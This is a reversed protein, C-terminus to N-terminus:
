FEKNDAGPKAGGKLALFGNDHLWTNLHMGRQFSNFGHDSLVIVLTREDARDLARGVIADCQCYHDRIVNALEASVGHKNAPHDPEGFRWFMHQIRDPTDFLCFLLGADLRDLEHHMMRERERLVLDCQQLYAAEDFRGNSLGTHDEVMGTTYFPGLLQELEKAYEPPHSIPFLPAQADFNVPSAYLEFAPEQRVLFFRLM